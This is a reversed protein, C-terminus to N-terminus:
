WIKQRSSIGIDTGARADNAIKWNIPKDLVSEARYACEGLQWNELRLGELSIRTVSYWAVAGLGIMGPVLLVLMRRAAVPGIGALRTPERLWIRSGAVM